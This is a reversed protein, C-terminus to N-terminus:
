NELAKVLKELIDRGPKEYKVPDGNEPTRVEVSVCLDKKDFLGFKKSAEFLALIREYNLFGPAGLQLHYDGYFESNKELIANALHIQILHEMSKELSKELEEGCLAAHATDWSIGINGYSKKVKAIVEVAEDIPGILGKKHVERDLPELLININGVASAAECIECLSEVLCEAAKKRQDAGPDRGTVFGINVAGCEAAPPLMEKVLAITRARLGSDTSAIDLGNKVTFPSLWQTVRLGSASALNRIRKRDGADEVAPLEVGGYFGEEVAKEVADAVIGKKDCYPFYLESVMLAPIFIKNASM